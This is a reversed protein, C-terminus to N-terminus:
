LWDAPELTLRDGLDAFVMLSSLQHFGDPSPPGVHLFLNVKAPAIAQSTM